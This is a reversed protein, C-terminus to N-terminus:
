PCGSFYAALFDALDDPTVLGDGDFDLGAVPADPTFFAGIFDSLDDPTLDGNRDFDAPCSGGDALAVRGADSLTLGCNNSVIVDYLGLSGLSVAPIVLTPGTEQPIPVGNRRWQFSLNVGSAAVSLTVPAGLTVTQDAPSQTITIPNLNIMEWTDNLRAPQQSEGGFLVNRHRATDYTMQADSRGIPGPIDFNLWAVGDWQFEDAYRINGLIGGWAVCKGRSHDFAMAPTIRWFTVNNFRLTWTVGDYEWTEATARFNGGGAFMVVRARVDDYAMAGSVRPLPSNPINRQVWSAGDWEWTDGLLVGPLSTGGWGGFLVTKQRRSDYAMFHGLRPTPGPEGDARRRWDIGDYEWTDGLNGDPNQGGFLVCVGRHHDFVMVGTGRPTPAHATQRQTWTVGNFEWTDSGYTPPMGGTGALNGGFLVTVNRISDFAMMHAYRPAPRTPPNVAQWRVCDSQATALPAIGLVCSIAAVITPVRRAVSGIAWRPRLAKQLPPM